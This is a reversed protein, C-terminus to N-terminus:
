ADFHQELLFLIFLLLPDNALVTRLIKLGHTKQNKVTQVSVGLRAAIAAPKLGDKYSLLFTDRLKPPLQDIEDFIRRLLSAQLDEISFDGPEFADLQALLSQQRASKMQERKLYNLCQNRVVIHLFGTVAEMDKFEQRKDWAKLYAEALIDEVETEQPVFRRGYWYLKEYLNHYITTFATEDGERFRQILTDDQYPVEQLEM